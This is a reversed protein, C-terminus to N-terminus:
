LELLVRVGCHHAYSLTFVILPYSESNSDTEKYINLDPLIVSLLRFPSSITNIYMESSLRSADLLDFFVM